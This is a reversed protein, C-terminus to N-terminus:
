EDARVRGQIGEILPEDYGPEFRRVLTLGTGYPLDFVQLDEQRKLEDLFKRVEINYPKDEGYIHSPREIMSDHFMVVARPGLRDVFSEYDIRAQQASHFGDIFLLGIEDLGRYHDTEVFEQTTMRFLRINDIGHEQFYTEVEGANMWFDDVMSPDIFTVEGRELNDQCARGVLMPVFGRFSGIVVAHRPHVLRALGYYLWGLGLNLDESRQNHGMRLLNPSEFLHAIWTTLDQRNADSM